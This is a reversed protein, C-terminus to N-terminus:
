VRFMTSLSQNMEDDDLGFSKYTDHVNANNIDSAKIEYEDDDKLKYHGETEKKNWFSKPTQNFPESVTIRKQLTEIPEPNRKIIESKIQAMEQSTKDVVGQLKDTLQTLMNLMQETQGAIANVKNDVDTQKQTLDTVDIEMEPTAPEQPALEMDTKPEQNNPNTDIQPEPNVTPNENGKPTELPNPNPENNDMQKEDDDDEDLLLDSEQNVFSYEVLKIFRKKSLNMEEENLKKLKGM